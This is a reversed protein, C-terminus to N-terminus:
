QVEWNKTAKHYAITVSSHAASPLVFSSSGDITMPSNVAVTYTYSGANGQVDKFSWVAGDSISSDAPLTVTCAAAGLMRVRKSMSSPDAITAGTGSVDEVSTSVTASNPKPIYADLGADYTVVYGDYHVTADVIVTQRTNTM